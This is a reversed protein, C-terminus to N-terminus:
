ASTLMDSPGIHKKGGQAPVWHRLNYGTRQELWSVQETMQARFMDCMQRQRRRAQFRMMREGVSFQAWAREKQTPILADSINLFACVRRMEATESTARDDAVMVHVNDRGFAADYETIMQEYRSALGYGLFPSEGAAHRAAEKALAVEFKTEPEVGLHMNFAHASLARMVPNEVTVVIQADPVQAAIRAATGPVLGYLASADGIRRLGAPMLTRQYDNLDRVMDSLRPDLRAVSLPNIQDLAFYGLERRATLFLEPHLSLWRWLLSASRSPPGILFFSPYNM